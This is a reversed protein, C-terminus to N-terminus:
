WDRQSRWGRDGYYAGWRGGDRHYRWAYRSIVAPKKTAKKEVQAAEPMMAVPPAAGTQPVKDHAAARESLSAVDESSNKAQGDPLGNGLPLPPLQEEIPAQINVDAAQREPSSPTRQEAQSSLRPRLLANEVPHMVVSAPWSGGVPHDILSYIAGAGATVGVASAVLVVTMTRSFDRAPTLYGWETKSYSM